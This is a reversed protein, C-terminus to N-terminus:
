GGGEPRHAVTACPHLCAPPPVASSTCCKPKQMIMWAQPQICWGTKINAQRCLAIAKSALLQEVYGSCVGSDWLRGTCCEQCTQRHLLAHLPPVRREKCVPHTLEDRPMVPRNITPACAIRSASNPRADSMMGLPMSQWRKVGPGREVRCGLLVM